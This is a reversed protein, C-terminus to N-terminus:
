LILVSSGAFNILVVEMVYIKPQQQRPLLTLSM